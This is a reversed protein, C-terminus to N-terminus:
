FRFDPDNDATEALQVPKDFNFAMRSRLLRGKLEFKKKPQRRTEAEFLLGDRIASNVAEKFSIEDNERRKRKLGKVVDDELTITTRM